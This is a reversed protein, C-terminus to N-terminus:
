SKLLVLRSAEAERKKKHAGSGGSAGKPERAEQTRWGPKITYLNAQIKYM